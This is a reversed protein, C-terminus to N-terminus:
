AANIGNTICEVLVCEVGVANGACILEASLAVEGVVEVRRGVEADLTCVHVVRHAELTRVDLAKFALPGVIDVRHRLGAQGVAHEFKDVSMKVDRLIFINDGDVDSPEIPEVSGNLDVVVHPHLVLGEGADFVTM